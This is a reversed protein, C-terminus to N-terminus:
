IEGAVARPRGVTSERIVLEPQLLTTVHEHAPGDEIEAMLLRVAERGMDLGQMQVSTLPIMGGWAASNHDCGMVAVDHPVEISQANFVQIIAMGLLDTVAIVGDLRGARVEEALEEGARLGGPPDLNETPVEQLSVRGGEEAVARRVGRRRLAVPQLYDRGGVFALRTRGIDILHRAALYGVQENDVLVQCCDGKGSDYNLVVTPRGHSRIRAVDGSADEMPALLIGSVRAEDFFDLDARQQDARNDSNAVLVNMGLEAAFRQAGRAIDVFLSNSIDIVVLGISSSRGAALQQANSNRVFGLEAIAGQVKALTAPSVKAPHNLVNSVTGLAVGAVRAVDSMSPTQKGNPM